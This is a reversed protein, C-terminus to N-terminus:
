KCAGNLGLLGFARGPELAFTVGEVAWPDRARYRKHLDRVEVLATM